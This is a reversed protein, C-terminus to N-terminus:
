LLLLFLFKNRMFLHVKEFTSLKNGFFMESEDVHPEPKSYLLARLFTVPTINSISHQTTWDKHQWLLLTLPLNKRGLFCVGSIRFKRQHLETATLSHNLDPKRTTIWKM